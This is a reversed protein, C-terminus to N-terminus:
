SRQGVNADCKSMRGWHLGFGRNVQGVLQRVDAPILRTMVCQQGPLVWFRAVQPVAPDRQDVLQLVSPDGFRLVPLDSNSNPAPIQGRERRSRRNWPANKGRRLHLRRQPLGM